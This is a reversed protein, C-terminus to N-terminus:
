HSSAVVEQSTTSYVMVTSDFMIVGVLTKVSDLVAVSVFLVILPDAFVIVFTLRVVPTVPVRGTELPPVPFVLRVAFLTMKPFPVDATWNTAGPLEPFTSVESPVVQVDEVGAADPKVIPRPRAMEIM